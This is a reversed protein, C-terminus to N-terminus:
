PHLVAFQDPNQRFRGLDSLVPGLNRLEVLSPTPIKRTCFRPFRLHKHRTTFRRRRKARSLTPAVLCSKAPRVFSLRFGGHRGDCSCCRPRQTAHMAATPETRRKNQQRRPNSATPEAPAQAQHPPQQASLVPSSSCGCCRLLLSPPSLHHGAAAFSLFGVYGLSAPLHIGSNFGM